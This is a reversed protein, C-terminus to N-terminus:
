SCGVVEENNEIGRISLCVDDAVEECASTFEDNGPENYFSNCAQYIGEVCEVQGSLSDMEIGQSDCFKSYLSAEESDESDELEPQTVEDINESSEVEEQQEGSEIQITKTEEATQQGDSIVYNIVIEEDQNASSEYVAHERSTSEFEGSGEEASWEHEADQAINDFDTIYCSLEEGPNIEQDCEVSVDVEQQEEAEVKVEAADEIEVNESELSYKIIIEENDENSSQYRVSEMNTTSFEGSGQTLTWTYDEIEEEINFDSVGCEVEEEPSIQDEQCQITVSSPDSDTDEECWDEPWESEEPVDTEEDIIVINIEDENLECTGVAMKGEYFWELSSSTELSPIHLNGVPLNNWEKFSETRVLDDDLERIEELYATSEGFQVGEKEKLTIKEGLEYDLMEFEDEENERLESPNRNCVEWPNEEQELVKIEAQNRESDIECVYGYPDFDDSDYRFGMREPEMYILQSNTSSDEEPRWLLGEYGEEDNGIMTRVYFPKEEIEITEGEEVTIREGFEYNGDDEEIMAEDTSVEEDSDLPNWWTGPAILKARVTGEGSAEFQEAKETDEEGFSQSQTIGAGEVELEYEGPEFAEFELSIQEDISYRDKGIDISADPEATEDVEIVVQQEESGDDTLGRWEIIEIEAGKYTSDYNNWFQLTQGSDPNVFLTYLGTKAYEEGEIINNRVFNLTETTHGLDLEKEADDEQNTCFAYQNDSWDSECDFGSSEPVESVIAIDFEERLQQPAFGSNQISELYPYEGENNGFGYEYLGITEGETLQQTTKAGFETEGNNRASKAIDSIEEDWYSTGYGFSNDHAFIGGAGGSVQSRDVEVGELGGAFYTKEIKTATGLNEGAIGGAVGNYSSLKGVAYSEGIDGNFNRGTIGGSIHSARVAGKFYSNEVTGWNWGVLGGVNSDGEIEGEFYSNQIITEETGGQGNRAVLGGVQNQGSVQSDVVGLNEIQGGDILHSILGAEEDGIINLNSIEYGAGNLSGRFAKEEESTEFSISGIPEFPDISSCDIDSTLTYDETLDDRVNNLDQCNDINQTSTGLSVLLTILLM